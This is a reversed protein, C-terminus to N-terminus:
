IVIKPLFPKNIYQHVWLYIVSIEGSRLAYMICTCRSILIKVYLSVIYSFEAIVQDEAMLM